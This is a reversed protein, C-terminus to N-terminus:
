VAVRCFADSIRCGCGLCCCGWPCAIPFHGINTEFTCLLSGCGAGFLAQSTQFCASNGPFQPFQSKSIVQGIYGTHRIVSDDTDVRICAMGTLRVQLGVVGSDIECSLQGSAGLGGEEVWAGM